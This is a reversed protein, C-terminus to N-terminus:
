VETPLDELIADHGGDGINIEATNVSMEEGIAANEWEEVLTSAEAGNDGEQWGESKGDWEERLRTAVEDRFAEAAELAAEYVGVAQNVEEIAEQIRTEAGNRVDDLNAWGEKLDKLIQLRTDKEEKTLKFAM